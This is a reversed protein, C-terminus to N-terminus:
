RRRRRKIRLPNENRGYKTMNFAFSQLLIDSIDDKKKYVRLAELGKEINLETCLDTCIKISLKKLDASKAKTSDTEYKELTGPLYSEIAKFKDRPNVFKVNMEHESYISKTYFYSLCSYGLVTNKIARSIQNEILVHDIHLDELIELNDFFDILSVCLKHCTDKMSGICVKETHILEFTHNDEDFEVICFALNIIGIDISLVRVKENPTEM